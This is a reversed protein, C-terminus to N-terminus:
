RLIRRARRADERIQVKLANRHKFKKEDRIKNLFMIELDKGYISKTFDFIHAEITVERAVSRGAFTPRVGINLIGKHLRNNLKVKVAYVGAPPIVEHHPDINATPFGMIRGKKEGGMVTGLVTVPRSLLRSAKKLNGNLILDRIRTSSIIQGSSKVTGIFGVTYGYIGALAKLKKLSGQKDRGFFFNRGVIIKGIRIKGLIRRTFGAPAMRALNRNFRLVLAYGVGMEELIRLRHKVSILLPVKKSPRLINAPHPDFTIVLTSLRKKKARKVLAELLKKHARHVGDFVGITVAFKKFSARSRLFENLGYFTKM